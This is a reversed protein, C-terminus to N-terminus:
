GIVHLKVMNTIIIYPCTIEKEFNAHVITCNREYIRMIDNQYHRTLLRFINRKPTRHKHIIAYQIFVHVSKNKTLGLKSDTYTHVLTEM